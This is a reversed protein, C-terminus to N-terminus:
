NITLKVNSLKRGKSDVLSYTKKTSKKAVTKRATSKKAVTKRVTPKRTTKKVAM